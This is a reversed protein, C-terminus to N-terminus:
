RPTSLVENGIFIADISKVVIATSTRNGTEVVVLAGVVESPLEGVYREVLMKEINVKRSIYLLNGAEVGQQTGLDLYEYFAYVLFVSLHRQNQRM